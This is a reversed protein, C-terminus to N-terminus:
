AGAAYRFLCIATIAGEVAVAAAYRPPAEIQHLSWQDAEGPDPRTAALYASAADLGVDFSGLGRSLGVGQAKLFAEKCTWYRFFAALRSEAPLARLSQCERPSFFREALKEIEIDAKIAELDIGVQRGHAVALLAWDGSHSVSFQVDSAPDALSPKGHQSYTFNIERPPAPTYGALISRVSARAVAFHRADKEFHFKSARTREEGSLLEKFTVFEADSVALPFQWIHISSALLVPPSPKLLLSGSRDAVTVSLAHEQSVPESKVRPMANVHSRPTADRAQHPAFRANTDIGTQRVQDVLWGIRSTSIKM